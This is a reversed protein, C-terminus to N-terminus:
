EQEYKLWWQKILKIDEESLKGNQEEKASILDNYLSEEYSWVGNIKIFGLKDKFYESDLFYSM